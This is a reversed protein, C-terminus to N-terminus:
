GGSEDDDLDQMLTSMARSVLSEEDLKTILGNALLKEVAGRTLSHRESPDQGIFLYFKANESIWAVQASGWEGQVFLHYWNGLRIRDLWQDRATQATPSNAEDYLQVPMTPLQGRDIKTNTWHDPMRSEREVLLRSVTAEPSPALTPVTGPVPTAQRVYGEPLAPLGRLLRGHMQMLEQLVPETDAPSLAISDCGQKFGELLAPLKHRLAQRSTEEPVTQLSDLLRDVWDIRASVQPADEGQQVMAQVIVRPWQTHLFQFVRPGLPAGFSQASIQEAVLKLWQGRMQERELAALASASGQSRQQAQASIHADVRDLVQQFLLASPTASEILLPLERDMFQLFAQLSENDVRDFAMGHAAVRNLLRWTPHDQRHLLSADSRSLRVVAVQLRALLAKLPPLLRPDALIQDYLRSLMDQGGAKIFVPEKSGTAAPSRPLNQPRSNHQNVRRTLGDLTAPETQRRADKLRLDADGDRIKSAHTVLLADMEAARLLSCLDMYLSQLGLALPTAAVQMLGYRREPDMEVGSLARLLAHAFLAPRLPNENKRARATGRLAAFFNGLQHLEPACQQEVTNIVHAIAVDQLAQREDVLSLSDLSGSRQPSPSDGQPSAALTQRMSSEFDAVFSPQVRRWPEQLAFHQPKAKFEDQLANFLGLSLGPLHAQAASLLTNLNPAAM